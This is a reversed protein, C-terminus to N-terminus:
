AKKGNIEEDLQTLIDKVFAIRESMSMTVEADENNYQEVFADMEEQVCEPMEYNDYNKVLDKLQFDLLLHNAAAYALQGTPGACFFSTPFGSVKYQKLLKYHIAIMAPIHLLRYAGAVGDPMTNLLAITAAFAIANSGLYAAIRKVDFRNGLLVAELEKCKRIDGARSKRSKKKPAAKTAKKATKKVPKAAVEETTETEEAEVACLNTTVMASCLFLPLLLKKLM